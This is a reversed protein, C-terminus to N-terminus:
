LALPYTGRDPSVSASFKITIIAKDYAEKGRELPLAVKISDIEIGDDTGSGNVKGYFNNAMTKFYINPLVSGTELTRLYDYTEPDSLESVEFTIPYVKKSVFEKHRSVQVVTEEPEGLSGSGILYKMKVGLAETNDIKSAWDAGTFMSTPGAASGKFIILDIESLAVALQCITAPLAPLISTSCSAAPVISFINGM